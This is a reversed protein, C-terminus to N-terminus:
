KKFFLDFNYILYELYKEEILLYKFNTNNIFLNRNVIYGNLKFNNSIILTELKTCETFMGSIECGSIDFNRLDLLEINTSYAFMEALTTVSTFDLYQEIYSLTSSSGFMKKMNTVNSTNFNKGLLIQQGKFAIFMGEINELVPAHFYRLDLIDGIFSTSFMYTAYKLSNAYLPKDSTGLSVSELKPCVEFMGGMQVVKEINWNNLNISTLNSCGSFMGYMSTVNKTNWNDITISTLSSFNQFMFGMDTVNEVNWNDLDLTSIKSCNKFMYLMNTVNKTNWNDGFIINSCGVDYFMNQMNTINQTDINITLTSNDALAGYFLGNTSIINTMDYPGFTFSELSSCLAFMEQIYLHRNQYTYNPCNFVIKDLNTISVLSSCNRFMRYYGAQGNAQLLGGVDPSPLILTTLSTCENFAEMCNGVDQGYYWTGNTYKALNANWKELNVYQLNTCGSFLRTISNVETLKGWEYLDARRLNTCGLFLDNINRTTTYQLGAATITSTGSNNELIYETEHFGMNNLDVVPIASNNHNKLTIKYYKTSYNGSVDALSTTGSKLSTGDHTFTAAITQPTSTYDEVTNYYIVEQAYLDWNSTYPM